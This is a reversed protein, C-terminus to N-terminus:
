SGDWAPSEAARALALETQRLLGAAASVALARAVVGWPGPVLRRAAAMGLGIYLSACWPCDIVDRWPRDGLAQEAAARLPVLLPMDHSDEVVARTLRYGALLEVVLGGASWGRM